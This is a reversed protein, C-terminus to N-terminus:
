QGRGKKGEDLLGSVWRRVRVKWHVREPEIDPQVMGPGPFLGKAAEEMKRITPHVEYEKHEAPM